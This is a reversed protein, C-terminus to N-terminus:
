GEALRSMVPNLEDETLVLDGMVMSEGGMDEFALWSGLALAPKIAVGELTGKLDPRPFPFRHGGGPQEAAPRGFVQEVRKWDTEAHAPSALVLALVLALRDRM